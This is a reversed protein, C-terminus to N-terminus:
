QMEGRQVEESQRDRRAFVAEIPAALILILLALYNVEPVLVGLLLAVAFLGTM